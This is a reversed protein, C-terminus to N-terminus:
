YTYGGVTYDAETSWNRGSCAFGPNKPHPRGTSEMDTVQLVYFPGRTVDCGYNGAPYVYYRYHMGSTNRPDVPLTTLETGDGTIGSIYDTPYVHSYAWSPASPSRPPLRDNRVLYIEINKVLKDIDALRQTDRARNQVNTFAILSISALVGIVAIVIILEVITFGTKNKRGNM